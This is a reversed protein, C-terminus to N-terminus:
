RMGEGPLDGRCESNGTLAAAPEGGKSEYRSVHEELVQLPVSRLVLGGAILVILADDLYGLVPVFDPIIDLPMALYLLLVGVVIRAIGGRRDRLLGFALRFKDGLRLRAVRRALDRREPSTTRWGVWAAIGLPVLLAAPVGLAIWLADM